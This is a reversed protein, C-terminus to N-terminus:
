EHMLLYKYASLAAKTAEGVAVGIQKEPVTTVDGAAFLGPVNTQCTCDVMIENWENLRVLDGVFDSNPILGIEIFVGQVSLEKREQTKVSEIVVGTVVDNGKIETVAYPLLKIVKETSETKEVIIPDAKLRSDKEILYVKNAIGMLDVAAELGSNGGGVVVVDKGKFFLADCTSCYSVGRGMFEREGPIGLYKSRKGSAIIVTKGIFKRGGAMTVVLQDDSKDLKEVGDGVVIDVVPFQEMQTRFKDTLEKGGIYHYGMYNEIDDTLLLQGGLDKSILLAKLQKRAAYVAATMGAPGGGIIILEYPEGSESVQDQVNDPMIVGLDLLDVGM